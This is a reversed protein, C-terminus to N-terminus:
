NTEYRKTKKLLKQRENRLQQFTIGQDADQTNRKTLQNRLRRNKNITAAKDNQLQRIEGNKKDLQDQLHQRNEEQETLQERLDTVDRYKEGSLSRLYELDDQLKGKELILEDKDDELALVSSTLGQIETEKEALQRKM